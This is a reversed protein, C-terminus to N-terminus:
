LHSTATRNHRWGRGAMTERRRTTGHPRSSSATGGQVAPVNRLQARVRACTSQCGLSSHDTVVKFEYGDIYPRFKGKSWVVVLCEKETVSYNREAPTLVRSAFELVQEIGEVEQLLVASLGVDSADTQVVFPSNPDPRQSTLALMIMAKLLEFASQQEDLWEFKQNKRILQTLPEAITAYDSIFQRYWSAMGQFKRLDRLNKPTPYEKIPAVKAPNPRTGDRNVLFRLYPVEPKCFVCKGPNLLLGAALLTELVM